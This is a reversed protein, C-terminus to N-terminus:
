GRLMGRLERYGNRNILFTLVAYAAVGVAILLTMQAITSVAPEVMARVIGVTTYMGLSALVPRAMAGLFDRMRLGVIPLFLMMAGLFVLPFATVWALALGLLGWRSGIIFAIPMVLSALMVQKLAIDARGIGLAATNMFPAFMHVPMILALLQLPVAVPNWQNGLLVPVLELAVSSIGWLVPFISFSLLRVALLFSAAYRERDGQIRAFAPFSVQNIIESVKNAPLSALHMAISYLGLLEKGLLKGAIIVDSQSYVFWLIRAVTINGGFFLLKRAGQLSFLPWALFPFAINLAATRCLAATLSGYVLAWVGLGALALALTILGGAVAAALEILSLRKYDLNRSLTASPIVAFIMLLYQFSLARVIRVLRPEMFFEAILPAAFYTTCFLGSNVAVALGLMQRLQREDIEPAQVVAFGVGFQALMMLFAIFVSAMALLGYDAPSLIRVVVVTM